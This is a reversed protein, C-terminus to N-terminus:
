KAHRHVERPTWPLSAAKKIVARALDAVGYRDLDEIAVWEAAAADSRCALTGGIPRCVYDILVYHYEVRGDADLSIRDLVDVIPGVEVDLCTEELIERALAATLTEGAHVAGGPLSWEGKLPAHGRKVLLVRDRDLVVAGVGVFPRDPYARM